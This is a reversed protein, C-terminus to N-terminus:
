WGKKTTNGSITKSKCGASSKNNYWRSVTIANKADGKYYVKNGTIVVKGFNSASLSNVIIGCRGGYVTNNKIAITSSAMDKPATSGEPIRICM